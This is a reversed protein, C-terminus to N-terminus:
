AEFRNRLVDLGSEGGTIGSGGGATAAATAVTNTAPPTPKRHAQQVKVPVERAGKQRRHGIIVHRRYRAAQLLAQLPVGTGTTVRVGNAIAPPGHLLGVPLSRRFFFVGVFFFAQLEVM